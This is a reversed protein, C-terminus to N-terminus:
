SSKGMVSQNSDDLKKEPTYIKMVQDATSDSGVAETAEERGEEGDVASRAVEELSRRMKELGESTLEVSTVGATESTTGTRSSPRTIM